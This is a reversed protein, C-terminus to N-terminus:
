CGPWLGRWGGRSEKEREPKLGARLTSQRDPPLAKFRGLTDLATLSLPRFTLGAALAKRNSRRSFGGDEGKLVAGADRVWFPLTTPNDIRVDFTRGELSALDGTNRDGTLEEVLGPWDKPNRGRNFLTSKHGRALAYHVQHLGIFGTGGLILIRLPRPAVPVSTRPAALPLAQEGARARGGSGAAALGVAKLM